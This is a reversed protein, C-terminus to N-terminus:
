LIQLQHLSSPTPLNIITEVKMPNLRIEGKSVIFGLLRGSDVYFICKHPNLWINYRRCLLFIQGLHDPHDMRKASHTPIEDLYPQIIHRIDHFSYPMGQQSTARANNLGFPLKQYAFTGWPCIFATKHQHTSIINIQNYCSFGDMLSFIESGVCDDIIQDIFPTPYNDKLCARNIDRYYVYAHITGKKMDVPVINSVWKTLPISYIFGDRLLKEVEAKIAATKRPYVLRLCQRVPKSGPYTPIEHVVVSPDIDLM